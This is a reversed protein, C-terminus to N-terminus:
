YNPSIFKRLRYLAGVFYVDENDSKTGKEHDGHNEGTDAELFTVFARRPEETAASTSPTAIDIASTAAIASSSVNTVPVEEKSQENESTHSMSTPPKSAHDIPLKAADQENGLTHTLSSTTKGAHDELLSATEQKSGPTTALSHAVKTGNNTTIRATDKGVGSTQVLSSGSSGVVRADRLNYLSLLVIITVALVASTTFTRYSSGQSTPSLM